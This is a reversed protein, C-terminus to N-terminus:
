TATTQHVEQVSAPGDRGARLTEQTNQQVDQGRKQVEQGTQQGTAVKGNQDEQTKGDKRDFSSGKVEFREGKKRPRKGRGLGVEVVFGLSEGGKGKGKDGGFVVIEDGSFVSGYRRRGKEDDGPLHFGNVWVGSRSRTAVVTELGKLTTWDRGEAEAAEIGPAVFVIEIAVKPIRTDSPHPHIYTNGPSRGWTTIRTLLPLTLQLPSTPTTRLHGYAPQTKTTSSSTLSPGPPQLPITIGLANTVNSTNASTLNSTLTSNADNNNNTAAYSNAESNEKDSHTVNESVSSAESAATTDPLSTSANGANGQDLGLASGNADFKYGSVKSAYDHNHTSPDHADYFISAHPPINIQRSRPPPKPRPTIEQDGTSAQAQKQQSTPRSSSPTKPNPRPQQPTRQDSSDLPTGNSTEMNLEGVMSERWSSNKTPGPLSPLTSSPAAPQTRHQRADDPDDQGHMQSDQPSHTENLGGQSRSNSPAVASANAGLVGSSRMAGQSIEGFLKRRGAPQQEVRSDYIENVLPVSAYSQDESEIIGSQQRAGHFTDQRLRKTDRWESSDNSDSDLWAAPQAPNGEVLPETADGRDNINLQSADLEEEDEAISELGISSRHEAGDGEERLWPHSLCAIEDPRTMPDTDLMVLLLDICQRSIGCDQLPETSLPTEMINNFMGKGTTDTIGEFPPKACLVYWLVAAFSWVDVLQSYSRKSNRTSRPRKLRKGAVYGDYHPFVEPACYLLTGCFTKLFTENHKIVKSLGFDTLKVTLPDESSILINDPKIDRHTINREHLYSLADLIQRTMVRALDEPLTGHSHMYGMMDGCPIYEMVLYLHEETEHYNIFQVIHPHRLGQMIKMENDVKTDLQGNKVFRRKELEKCAFLEGHMRTAVQYVTAFAGNGLVGTCKYEEGGSWRMGYENSLNPPHLGPISKPNPPGALPAALIGRAAGDPMPPGQHAAAARQEAVIRHRMYQQYRDKYADIHGDRSPVRLIFKIMDSQNGHQGESFIEIVSGSSLMLQSFQGKPILAGGMKKKGGLLQQDVLTGNTSMDELMLVGSHNLFIRFHTNSVRKQKNEFDLNIDCKMSNRGFCFGLSPDMVKSSFRLALDRAQIGPPSDFIMTDLESSPIGGMNTGVSLGNNQLVHQANTRATHDVIQFAVPSAPHLICIVDSIDGDCLGSNNFGARRPDFQRQTLEQTCQSEPPM